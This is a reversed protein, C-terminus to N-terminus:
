GSSQSRPRVWAQLLLADKRSSKSEARAALNEQRPCVPVAEYGPAEFERSFEKKGCGERFGNDFEIRKDPDLARRGTSKAPLARGIHATAGHLRSNPIHQEAPRALEAALKSEGFDPHGADAAQYAIEISCRLPAAPL